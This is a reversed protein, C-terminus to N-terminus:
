IMNKGCIGPEPIILPQNNKTPFKLQRFYVIIRVIALSASVAIIVFVLFTTIGVAIGVVSSTSRCDQATILIVSITLLVM